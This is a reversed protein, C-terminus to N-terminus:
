RSCLGFASLCQLVTPHTCCRRLLTPVYLSKNGRFTIEHALRLYDKGISETVTDACVEVMPMIHTGDCGGISM